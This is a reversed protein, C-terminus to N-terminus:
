GAPARGCAEEIQYRVRAVGDRTALTDRRSLSLDSLRIV